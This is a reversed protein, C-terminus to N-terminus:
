SFVPPARAGGAAIRPKLRPVSVPALPGTAANAVCVAVGALRELTRRMWAVVHGVATAIAAGVLSLAADIPLLNRHVPGFVAAPLAREARLALRWPKVRGARASGAQARAIAANACDIRRGM